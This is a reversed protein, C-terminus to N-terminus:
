DATRSALSRHEACVSWVDAIAGGQAPDHRLVASRPGGHLRKPSDRETPPRVWAEGTPQSSALAKSTTNSVAKFPARRDPPRDVRRVSRACREHRRRPETTPTPTPNWAVTKPRSRVKRRVYEELDSWKDFRSMTSSKPSEATPLSKESGTEEHLQSGGTM